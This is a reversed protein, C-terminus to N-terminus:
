KRFAFKREIFKVISFLLIITVIIGIYLPIYKKIIALCVFFLIINIGFGSLLVKLHSFGGQIARQYIHNKHAHSLKEKNLIRRFLTFSADFWFLASLLMWFIFNLQNTNHFHIGFVILIFGLTTSGSDGMFIKAKPWNWYLFGILSFVLILLAGSGTFFWVALAISIAEMSAYGDSGDLFNFLNIFWVVGFVAVLSWLGTFNKDFLPEFGGLLFLALGSCIFQIIFRISPSLDKLDDIVGAIAIGLGPLLAYFLHNDLEDFLNLFTLGLYFIIIFAFGAGRPTPTLHSSRENPIDLFSRKIAWKKYIYVLFFSAFFIWFCIIIIKM